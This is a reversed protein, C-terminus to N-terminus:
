NNLSSKEDIIKENHENLNIGKNNYKDNADKSYGFFNRKKM